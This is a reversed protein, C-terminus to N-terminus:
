PYQAEGERRYQDYLGEAKIQRIAEALRPALGEHQPALYPFLPLADLVAVTHVGKGAFEPRDLPGRVVEDLTVLLDSRGALLKALGSENTNVPELRDAPVLPELREGIYRIDRWWDVEWPAGRLSAWDSVEIDTRLALAIVKVEGVAEDVRILTPHQVGFLRARHVLGDVQDAEVMLIQREGPLAKAQYGFGLRHFAEGYVRNALATVAVSEAFEPMAFVMPPPAAGAAFALLLLLPALFRFM